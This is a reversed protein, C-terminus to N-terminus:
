CKSSSLRCLLNVSPDHSNLKKILLIANIFPVDLPNTYPPHPTSGLAEPISLVHEVM